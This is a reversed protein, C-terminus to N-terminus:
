VVPSSTLRAFYASIPCRPWYSVIEEECKWPQLLSRWDKLTRIFRGDDMNSLITGFPNAFWPDPRIPDVSVFTAEPHQAFLLQLLNRCAQDDIHHLFLHGFFNRSRPLQDLRLQVADALLYNAQPFRRRAADIRAPDVDVGWYECGQRMFYDAFGGDGCGLEVVVEGPQIQLMRQVRPLSNSYDGHVITQVLRYLRPKLYM